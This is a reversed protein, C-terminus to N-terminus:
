CDQNKNDECVSLRVPGRQHRAYLFVCLRCRTNACSGSSFSVYVVNFTNKVVITCIFNKLIFKTIEFFLLM